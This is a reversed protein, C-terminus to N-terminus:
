AAKKFGLVTPEFDWFRRTCIAHANACTHLDVTLGYTAAYAQMLQDLVHGTRLDNDADLREIAVKAFLPLYQFPGMGLGLMDGAELAREVSCADQHTAGPHPAFPGAEPSNHPHTQSHETM